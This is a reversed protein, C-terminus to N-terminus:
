NKEESKSFCFFLYIFFFEILSHFRCVSISKRGLMPTKERASIQMSRCREDTKRTDQPSTDGPIIIKKQNKSKQNKVNREKHQQKQKGM